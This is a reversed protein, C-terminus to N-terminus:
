YKAMGKLQIAIFKAFNSRSLRGLQIGDIEPLVINVVKDVKNASVGAYSILNQYAAQTSNSYQETKFLQTKNSKFEKLDLEKLM